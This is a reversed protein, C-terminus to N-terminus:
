YIVRCGFFFSFSSLPAAPNESIKEIASGMTSGSTGSGMDSEIPLKTLAAAGLGILPDELYPAM